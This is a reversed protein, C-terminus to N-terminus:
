PTKRAAAQQEALLGDIQTKFSSYPQAGPILRVTKVKTPGTEPVALLFGPTGTVGASQGLAIDKRIDAAYQHSSVCEEFETMDLGVASAHANWNNFEAPSKQTGFLRDHMEWFKGQDGACRATEAAALASKHISEIPFDMFVVKLKGTEVYEKVIQPDTERVHRECFPCQFDSFEVMTLKADPSGKFPRNALDLVINQPPRPQAGGRQLLTKIEQLDAQVSKLTESLAQIEKKLETGSPEQAAVAHSVLLGGLALGTSLRRMGSKM